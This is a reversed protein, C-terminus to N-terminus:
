RSNRERNTSLNAPQQFVRSHDEPVRNSRGKNIRWELIQKVWDVAKDLMSWRRLAQVIVRRMRWLWPRYGKYVYYDFWIYHHVIRRKPFSPLNLFARIRERSVGLKHKLFGMAVAREYLDTGPYPYYISTLHIDPQCERNLALTNQFDSESEGPIGILNYLHVKIGYKKALRVANVIERNSYNRRLLDRRVRENGSELGIKVYGFNSRHFGAFLKELDANPTIRLNAGWMLPEELSANLEALGDTLALAWAPNAAITEVELYYERKEPNRGHLERIERVINAVSRYRVYAGPALKRLAHNSCYACAFPCGRGLLLVDRARPMERLWPAWMERDPFPLSDLDQLFPRCPNKEIGSPRKIWLNAIGAPERGAAMQDALELMPYEGEGICAMDFHGAALEGPNLSIHPGGVVLRLRPHRAKVRGAIDNLFGYQTYVATFALLEPAFEAVQRELLDWAIRGRNSQLVALRTEHGHAKLLSSIYSIGLQESEPDLPKQSSHNNEVSHVFLIRM